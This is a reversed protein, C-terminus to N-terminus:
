KSFVEYKLIEARFYKWITDYIKKQFRQSSLTKTSTDKILDNLALIITETYAKFKERIKEEEKIGEIYEEIISHVTENLSVITPIMYKEYKKRITTRVYIRITNKGDVKTKKKYAFWKPNPIKKESDLYQKTLINIHDYAKTTSTYDFEQDILNKLTPQDIGDNMLMIMFAEFERMSLDRIDFSNERLRPIKGISKRRSSEDVKM